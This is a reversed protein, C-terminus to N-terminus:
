IESPFFFGPDTVDLSAKWPNGCSKCEFELSMDLDGEAVQIRNRISMRDRMGLRGMFAVSQMFERRKNVDREVRQGSIEDVRCLMNLTLMGEGKLKSKAKALWVEDNGTMVHFTYDMGSPTTGTHIRESPNEMEVAGLTSLDVTFKDRVSCQPCASEVTYDDGMSSRRLAVLLFYRDIVTLDNVIKVNGSSDDKPGIQQLCNAMVKNMRFLPEGRGALLEEEVGTMERVIIDKHLTGDEAIWGCPLEYHGVAPRPNLFHEKNPDVKEPAANSTASM